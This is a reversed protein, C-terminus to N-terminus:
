KAKQGQLVKFQSKDPKREPETFLPQQFARQRDIDLQRAYHLTMEIDKHGMQTKVHEMNVGRKIATYAFTHRLQHLSISPIGARRCLRVLIQRIGALTLPEGDEKVWVYTSEPIIRLWRELASRTEEDYYVKHEDGGKLKVMVSYEDLNIDSRKMGQLGGRRSGTALAIKLFAKDRPDTAALLLADVHQEKVMKPPLEPPKKYELLLAPSHLLLNNKVFWRFFSRVGQVIRDITYPSLGGAVSPRVKCNAWREKQSTLDALFDWLHPPRVEDLPIDGAVRILRTIATKYYRKTSDSLRAARARMFMELAGSLLM